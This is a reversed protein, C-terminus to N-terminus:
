IRPSELLCFGSCAARVEFFRRASFDRQILCNRISLDANLPPNDTDHEVRMFFVLVKRKQRKDQAFCHIREM